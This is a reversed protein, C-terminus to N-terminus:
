PTAPATKAEEIALRATAAARLEDLQSILAQADNMPHPQGTQHTALQPRLESLGTSFPHATLHVTIPHSSAQVLSKIRDISRIYAVVQSPGDIANLGLGGITVARYTNDGDHVDLAYSTTGWTHGPTEYVYIRTDGVTVVDGDKVLQDAHAPMSWAGPKGTSAKADAISEEWGRQTMVFKANTHQKLWAVGGVHDFHGHTLFVYKIDAPNFGLKKVNELLRETYPEYVTDILVLGDSTKILWASVWCIGVNYVNDFAQYPEISQIAPDNLWRGLEAPMKGTNGFEGFLASVAPSQDCSTLPMEAKSAPQTPTQMTQADSASTWLLLVATTMSLATKLM